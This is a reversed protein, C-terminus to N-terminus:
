APSGKSGQFAVLWSGVNTGICCPTRNGVALERVQSWLGIRPSAAIGIGTGTGGYLLRGQGSQHDKGPLAVLEVPPALQSPHGVKHTRV